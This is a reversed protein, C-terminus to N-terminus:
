RASALILSKDDDTRQCVKESNLFSALAASLKNNKGIGPTADLPSMMTHFFPEHPVMSRQDLALNEIGDSFLAIADFDPDFHAIRVKPAPDETVFFTTSAYEGSEPWSIARWAGSRERGVIAGDGIHVTLCDNPTSVLMVLTSAFAQRKISRRRAAIALSERASDIWTWVQEEVPMEYSSKFHERIALTMIRCLVSAGEGGFEASGAGDCIIGSFVPFENDGVLICSLADQKRTGLKIHSTGTESAAAWRWKYASNM